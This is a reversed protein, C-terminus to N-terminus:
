RRFVRIQGDELLGCAHSWNTLSAYGQRLKCLCGLEIATATRGTGAFRHSVTNCRHSHGQCSSCGLLLNQQCTAKGWRRGHQFLVGQWKLFEDYQYVRWHEPIGLVSEIALEPLDFLEPAKRLLFKRLREEHNGLLYDVERFHEDLYCVLERGKRLEQPLQARARLTKPFRCVPNFDVLDGLLIVGDPECRRLTKVAWEVARRSDLPVHVDPLIAWRNTRRRM